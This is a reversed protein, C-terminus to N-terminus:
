IIIEWEYRNRMVFEVGDMASSEEARWKRTESAVNGTKSTPTATGTVIIIVM